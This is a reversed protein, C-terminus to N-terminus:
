QLIVRDGKLLKNKVRKLVVMNLFSINAYLKDLVPRTGNRVDIAHQVLDVEEKKLKLGKVEKAIEDFTVPFKKKDIIVLVRAGYLLSKTFHTVCTVLDEQKFSHTAALAYAQQFIVVEHLDALNIRPPKLNEIIKEGSFTKGGLIVDRLYVAKPFPTDIQHKLFDNYFFSFINLCDLSHMKKLKRRPTYNKRKYIVGVEYDSDKKFDRRARSGYIFISVPKTQKEIKNLVEEVEKSINMYKM